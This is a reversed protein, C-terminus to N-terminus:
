WAARRCRARLKGGTCGCVGWFVLRMQWAQGEDVGRPELLGSFARLELELGVWRLRRTGRQVRRRWGGIFREHGEPFLGKGDPLVAVCYGSREALEVLAKQVAPPRCRPGLM